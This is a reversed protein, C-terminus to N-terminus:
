YRYETWHIIKGNFGPKFFDIFAQRSEFGDNIILQAVQQQTLKINDVYINVGNSLDIRIKQVSVCERICFCNYNPSRVGTAMHIVRGPCWRNLPDKRFSHIKSGNLIKPKFQEQYPLVMINDRREDRTYVDAASNIM